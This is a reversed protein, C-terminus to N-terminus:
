SAHQDSIKILRYVRNEEYVFSIQGPTVVTQFPYATTMARPMGQSLCLHEANDVKAGSNLDAISQEYRSRGAATFPLPQGDAPALKPNPSKIWWKANWASENAALTLSPISACIMAVLAARWRARSSKM